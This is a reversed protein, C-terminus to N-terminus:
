TSSGGAWRKSRRSAGATASGSCALATASSGTVSSRSESSRGHSTSDSAASRTSPVPRPLSAARLLRRTKVELRSELARGDSASLVRRVRPSGPRGRGCLADARRQMLTLTTLGMRRASEFATEFRRRGRTRSGPRDLHPDGLHVSNRRRFAQRHRAAFADSAGHNAQQPPDERLRDDRAARRIHHRRAAVVTRGFQALHCRATWLTAALARQRGIVPAGPVRYVGPHVVILRGSAIRRDLASDSLGVSLAQARTILGFQGEACASFVDM